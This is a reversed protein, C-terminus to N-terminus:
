SPYSEPLSTETKLLLRSSHFLGVLLAVVRIISAEVFFIARMLSGHETRAPGIAKEVCNAIPM